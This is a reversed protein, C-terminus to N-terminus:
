QFLFVCINPDVCNLDMNTLPWSYNTGVTPCSFEFPIRLCRRITLLYSHNWLYSFYYKTKLSSLSRRCILLLIYIVFYHFNLWNLFFVYSHDIAYSFINLMKLWWPFSSHFSCYFVSSHVERSTWHNLIMGGICPVCNPDRPWSSGVPRLAVLGM